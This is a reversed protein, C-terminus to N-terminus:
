DYIKVSEEKVYKPICYVTVRDRSDLFYSNKYNGYRKSMQEAFYNCTNINRFYMDASVLKRDDGTGLYLMLLFVHIM